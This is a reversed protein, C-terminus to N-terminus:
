VHINWYLFLTRTSYLICSYLLRSWKPFFKVSSFLLIFLSIYFDQDYLLSSNWQLIFYSLSLFFSHQNIYESNQHQRFFAIFSFNLALDSLHLCMLSVFIYIFYLSIFTRIIINITLHHNMEKRQKEERREGASLLNWSM